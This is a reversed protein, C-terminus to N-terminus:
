VVRYGDILMIAIEVESLDSEPFLLEWECGVFFRNLCVMTGDNTRKACLGTFAFQEHNIIIGTRVLVLGSDSVSYDKGKYKFSSVM